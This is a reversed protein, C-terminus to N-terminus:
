VSSDGMLRADAPRSWARHLLALVRDATQQRDAAPVRGVAGSLMTLALTVDSAIRGTRRAADLKGDILDRMRQEVMLLRDDHASALMDIFATSDVTYEAVRRLLDDLEVAPDAVMEELSRLNDEFVALALALRDPFHRYLVAQGVGAARAVAYLPADFGADAFVVRAAALLAM